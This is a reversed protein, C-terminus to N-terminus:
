LGVCITIKSCLGHEYLTTPLSLIWIDRDRHEPSSLSPIYVNRMYVEAGWLTGFVGREESIGPVFHAGWMRMDSVAFADAVVASAVAGAQELIAFGQAMASQNLVGGTCIVSGSAGFFGPMDLVPRADEEEEGDKRIAEDAIENLCDGGKWQVDKDWVLRPWSVEPKLIRIGEHIFPRDEARGIVFNAVFRDKMDTLKSM